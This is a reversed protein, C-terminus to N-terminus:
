QSNKNQLNSLLIFLCEEKLFSYVAQLTVGSTSGPNSDALNGAVLLQITKAGTNIVVETAQNLSDPAVLKAM